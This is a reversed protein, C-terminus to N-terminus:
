RILRFIACKKMAGTYSLATTKVGYDTAYCVERRGDRYLIGVEIKNM